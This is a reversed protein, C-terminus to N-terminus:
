RQSVVYDTLMPLLPGVDYNNWHGIGGATFINFGIVYGDVRVGADYWAMQNVFAQEGSEAWGQDVWYDAFDYWGFGQPGPRTGSMLVGDIGLESIVLPIVLNNPELIDRYWWRYRFSLPGRDIYTPFGPLPDGFLFTIDPASGEHLTLIGQHEKAVAIAPVFLLFEDFEPVGAPFGGIAGRLGYQSMIRLRESEFRAYWDMRDMNPDPENWGEWYDIHPNLLYRDMQKMVFDRASQEPNEGYHQHDEGLRGVVVTRPSVEKVEELFGVDDVAKMVAPQAERVFEMIRPDNNRVVHLGLKSPGLEDSPPLNPFDVVYRTATATPPSPTGTETPLPTASSRVTRTPFLPTATPIRTDAMGQVNGSFDALQPLLVTYPTWTPPVTATATVAGPGVAATRSPVVAVAAQTPAGPPVQQECAALGVLLLFGALFLYRWGSQIRQNIRDFRTNGTLQNM